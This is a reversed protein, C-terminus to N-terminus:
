SNEMPPIQNPQIGTWFAIASVYLATNNEVPPAYKNIVEELTLNAYASSNLLANLCQFGADTNPFIAFRPDGATAGYLRAFDGFEIDGPNNNRQPRNAVQGAAYFGEMRAIAQALTMPLQPLPEPVFSM